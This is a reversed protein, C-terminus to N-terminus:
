IEGGAKQLCLEFHINGREDLWSNSAKNSIVEAYERPWPHLIVFHSRIMRFHQTGSAGCSGCASMEWSGLNGLM